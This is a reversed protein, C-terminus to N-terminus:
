TGSRCLHFIMGIKENRLESKRIGRREEETDREDVVNIIYSLPLYSSQTIAAERSGRSPIEHLSKM